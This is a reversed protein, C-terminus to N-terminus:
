RTFGSAQLPLASGASQVKQTDVDCAKESTKLTELRWLRVNKVAEGKANEPEESRFEFRPVGHPTRLAIASCSSLCAIKDAWDDTFKTM